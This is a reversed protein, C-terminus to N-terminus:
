KNIVKFYEKVADKYEEPIKEEYVEQSAGSVEDPYNGGFGNKEPNNIKSIDLETNYAQISVNFEEKGTTILRPKDLKDRDKVEDRPKDFAGLLFGSARNYIPSKLIMNKIDLIDFGISGFYLTSVLMVLIISVKISLKKNTLFTNVDIDKMTGIIDSHLENVVTNSAEQHDYSTRLREKLGPYKSELLLIKNQKIKIYLSRLFLVIAPVLAFLYNLRYFYSLFFGASFIAGFTLFADFLNLFLSTVILETYMSKINM